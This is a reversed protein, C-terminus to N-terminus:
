VVKRKDSQNEQTQKNKVKLFEFCVKLKGAGNEVCKTWWDNSTKYFDFWFGPCICDSQSHLQISTVITHVVAYHGAYDCKM